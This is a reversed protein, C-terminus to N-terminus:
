LFYVLNAIKKPRTGSRKENPIYKKYLKKLLGKLTFIPLGSNDSNGDHTNEKYSKEWLKTIEIIKIEIAKLILLSNQKGISAQGNWIKNSKKVCLM